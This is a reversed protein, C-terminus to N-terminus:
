VDEGRMISRIKIRIPVVFVDIMDQKNLPRVRHWQYIAYPVLSAISIFKDQVIFERDPGTEGRFSFQMRGTDIPIFRARFKASHNQNAKKATERMMRPSATQLRDLKSILTDIGKTKLTYSM